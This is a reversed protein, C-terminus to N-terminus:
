GFTTKIYRGGSLPTAESEDDDVTMALDYGMRVTM